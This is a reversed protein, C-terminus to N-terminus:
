FGPPFPYSNKITLVNTLARLFFTSSFIIVFNRIKKAAKNNNKNLEGRYLIDILAIFLVLVCGCDGFTAIMYTVNLMGYHDCLTHNDEFDIAIFTPVGLLTILSALIIWVRLCFIKRTM